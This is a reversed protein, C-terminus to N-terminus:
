RPATRTDPRLAPDPRVEDETLWGDGNRDLKRLAAPANKMEEASIEGDHDTDLAALVPHFRMFGLRVRTAAEPDAAIIAPLELGCEEPTLKGDGNRDLKKLAARANAIESPSIMGDRDTDLAALVLILKFYPSMPREYPYPKIKVESRLEDVALGKASVPLIHSPSPHHSGILLAAHYGWHSMIFILGAFVGISLILGEVLATRRPAFSDCTYFVPVGGLTPREAAVLPQDQRHYERPISVVADAVIDLWFRLRAYIGREANLRDCFLGIAESGYDKQFRRPYLAVLWRYVKKSM